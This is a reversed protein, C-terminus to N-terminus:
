FLSVCHNTALFYDIPPHHGTSSHTYAWNCDLFTTGSFDKIDQSAISHSGGLSRIHANLDGGIICPGLILSSILLCEQDELCSRLLPIAQMLYTCM